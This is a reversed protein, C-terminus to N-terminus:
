IIEIKEGDRTSYVNNFFEAYREPHETHIPIIKKPTCAGAIKQLAHIGAHGSTHLFIVEMNMEEAYSILKKVRPTKKYGSWISYILGAKLLHQIHELDSLMTDRILMCYDKREGLEKKSIYYRSFQEILEEGTVEHSIRQTLYKPYFVRIDKCADPRPISGCLQSVIHATFIDMVGFRGSRKTANYMSVLRDINTASQLVFIPRQRTRMFECAKEEIQAETLIEEDTRGMMTGEILLAEINKPLKLRFYDTAKKKRGHDRFDGTYVVCRNNAQIVFAYADFGSHDVLYPTVCFDGIQIEQGSVLFHVPNIIEKQGTFQATVQQIKHAMEGIYVPIQPNVLGILGLHDGHGHSVFVADIGKPGDRFLGKVKPLLVEKKKVVSDVSPLEQGVDLIIRTSGVSLEICTGGIQKAGRHITINM